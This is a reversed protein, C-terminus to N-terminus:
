SLLATIRCPATHMCQVDPSCSLDVRHVNGASMASLQSLLPVENPM